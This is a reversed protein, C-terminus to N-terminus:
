TELRPLKRRREEATKTKKLKEEAAEARFSLEAWSASTMMVQSKRRRERRAPAVEGKRGGDM